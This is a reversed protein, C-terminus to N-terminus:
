NHKIATMHVQRARARAQREHPAALYGVAHGIAAGVLAGTARTAKNKGLKNGLMGGAVVLGWIAVHGTTLKTDHRDQQALHELEHVLTHNMEEATRPKGKVTESLRVIDGKAQQIEANTRFRLRGVRNPYHTGFTQFRNVPDIYITAADIGRDSIGLHRMTEAVAQTDVSIDSNAGEGYVIQPTPTNQDSTLEINTKQM